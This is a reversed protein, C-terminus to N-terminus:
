KLLVCGSGVWGILDVEGRLKASKWRRYIGTEASLFLTEWQGREGTALHAAKTSGNGRRSPLANTRRMAWAPVNIWGAGVM